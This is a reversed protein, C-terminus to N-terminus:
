ACDRIALKSCATSRFQINGLIETLQLPVMDKLLTVQDESGYRESIRPEESHSQRCKCENFIYGAVTIFFWPFSLNQQSLHRTVGGILTTFPLLLVKMNNLMFKILWVVVAVHQNIINFHASYYLKLCKPRIYLYYLLLISDM